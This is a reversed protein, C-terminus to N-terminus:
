KQHYPGYNAANLFDLIPQFLIYTYNAILLISSIRVIENFFYAEEKIM